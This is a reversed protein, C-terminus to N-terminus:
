SPWLSWHALIINPGSPVIQVRHTPVGAQSYHQCCIDTSQQRSNRYRVLLSCSHSFDKDILKHASKSNWQLNVRILTAVKLGCYKCIHVIQKSHSLGPSGRKVGLRISHHLMEISSNFCLEGYENIFMLMIPIQM